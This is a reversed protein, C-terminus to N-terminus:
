LVLIFVRPLNIVLTTLMGISQFIYGILFLKWSIVVLFFDAIPRASGITDIYARAIDVETISKPIVPDIKFNEIKEQITKIM